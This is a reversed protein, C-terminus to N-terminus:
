QHGMSIGTMARQKRSAAAVAMSRCEKACNL